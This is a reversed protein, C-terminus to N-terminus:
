KNQEEIFAQMMAIIQGTQSVGAKECAEAFSDAIEKKMKFNKTIIGAKKRYKETATTQATPSEKPM